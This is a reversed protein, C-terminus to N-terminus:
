KQMGRRYSLEMNGITQRIATWSHSLLGSVLLNKVGEPLNPNRRIEENLAIELSRISFEGTCLNEVLRDFENMTNLKKIYEERKKGSRPIKQNIMDTKTLNDLVCLVSFGSTKDHYNSRSVSPGGYAMIRYWAYAPSSETSSWWTGTSGIGGYTGNHNRYGCPFTSITLNSWEKDSPIRWGVPALGREDNVAYWNYLKGYKKGNEPDNDYYCWCGVKESGYKIWEEDSRAEPILEGNRYKDVDLNVQSYDIKM